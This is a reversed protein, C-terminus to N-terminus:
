IEVIKENRKWCFMFVLQSCLVIGDVKWLSSKISKFLILLMLYNESQVKSFKNKKWIKIKWDVIKTQKFFKLKECFKEGSFQYNWYRRTQNQVQSQWSLMYFAVKFSLLSFLFIGNQRYKKSTTEYLLACSVCTCLIKWLSKM